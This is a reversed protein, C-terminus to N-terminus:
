CYSGYDRTAFISGVTMATYACQRRMLPPSDSTAMVVVSHAMGDPRSRDRYIGASGPGSGVLALVVVDCETGLTLMSLLHAQRCRLRCVSRAAPGTSVHCLLQARSRRFRHAAWAKRSVDGGATRDTRRGTAGGFLIGKGDLPKALPDIVRGLWSSAVDLLGHRSDLLLARSGHAVGDLTGYAMAQLAADRFGIVEALICRHDRTHLQLGDGAAALGSM